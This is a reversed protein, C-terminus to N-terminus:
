THSSNLRTSKRDELGPDFAGSHEFAPQPNSIGQYRVLRRVAQSSTLKLFQNIEEPTAGFGTRELLHAARERTWESKSIRSLDNTWSAPAAFVASSVFVALLILSSRKFSMLNTQVLSPSSNLASISQHHPQQFIM